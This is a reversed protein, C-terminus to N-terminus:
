QIYIDIFDLGIIVSSHSSVRVILSNTSSNLSLPLIKRFNHTPLQCFFAFNNCVGTDASGFHSTYQNLTYNSNTNNLYHMQTTVTCTNDCGIIASPLSSSQRHSFCSQTVEQNYLDGTTVTHIHKLIGTFTNNVILSFGDAYM